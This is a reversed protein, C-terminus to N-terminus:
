YRVANGCPHDRPDDGRDVTAVHEDVAGEVTAIPTARACRHTAAEITCAPRRGSRSGLPGPHLPRHAADRHGGHAGRADRYAAARVSVRGAGPRAGARADDICRASPGPADHAVEPTRHASLLNSPHLLSHDHFPVCPEKAPQTRARSDARWAPPNSARLAQREKGTTAATARARSGQARCGRAASTVDRRGVAVM